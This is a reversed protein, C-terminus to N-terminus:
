LPTLERFIKSSDNNKHHTLGKCRVSWVLRYLWVHQLLCWKAEAPVLALMNCVEIQLEVADAYISILPTLVAYSISATPSHTLM